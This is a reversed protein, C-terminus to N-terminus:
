LKLDSKIKEVDELTLGRDILAKALHARGNRIAWKGPRNIETSEKKAAKASSAKEQQTRWTRQEDLSRVRARGGGQAFVQPLLDSPMNEVDFYRVSRRDSGTVVPILEVVYQEQEAYPLKRLLQATRGAATALKPHMEGRGVRLLNLWTTRYHSPFADIFLARDEDSMEVLLYGLRATKRSIDEFGRLLQEAIEKGHRSLNDPIYAELGEARM